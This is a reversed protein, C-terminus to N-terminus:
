AADWRRHYPHRKQSDTIVGTDSNIIFRMRITDTCVACHSGILGGGQIKEYMKVNVIEEEASYHYSVATLSVFKEHCYHALKSFTKHCIKDPLAQFIFGVGSILSFLM